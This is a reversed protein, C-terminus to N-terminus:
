FRRLKGNSRIKFWIDVAWLIRRCNIALGITFNNYRNSWEVYDLNMILKHMIKDLGKIKRRRLAEKRAKIHNVLGIERKEVDHSQSDPIVRYKYLIKNIYIPFTVEELKLVLDRDEAYLVEKDLGETRYYASKRFTFLKTIFGSKMSTKGPEIEQGLVDKPITLTEDFLQLRSHVFEANRIKDYIDIMVETAESSLADDSDLFGVIDTEAEHILRELTEVYGLNISNRILRIKKNLYTKIVDVSNDNSADDCIICLWRDSTQNKLSEICEKIYKSCNYNAVLYTIKEM